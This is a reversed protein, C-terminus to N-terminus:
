IAPAYQRELSKKVDATVWMEIIERFKARSIPRRGEITLNKYKKIMERTIYVPDNDSTRAIPGNLHEYIKVRRYCDSIGKESLRNVGVRIMAQLVLRLKLDITGEEDYINIIKKVRKANWTLPLGDPLNLLLRTAKDISSDVNFIGFPPRM